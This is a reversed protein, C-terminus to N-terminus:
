LRMTIRSAFESAYRRHDDTSDLVFVAASRHSLQFIKACGSRRIRAAPTYGSPPSQQWCIMRNQANVARRVVPAPFAPNLPKTISRSHSSPRRPSPPTAPPVVPGPAPHQRPTAGGPDPNQFRGYRSTTGTWWSRRGDRRRRAPWVLRGLGYRRRRGRRGARAPRRRPYMPFAVCNRGGELIGPARDQGSREEEPSLARAPAADPCSRREPARM